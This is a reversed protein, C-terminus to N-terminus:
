PWFAATWRWTLHHVFVGSFYSLPLLQGRCNQGLRWRCTSTLVLWILLAFALSTVGGKWGIVLSTMVLAGLWDRGHSDGVSFRKSLISALWWALSGIALGVAMNELWIPASVAARQIMELNEFEHSRFYVPNFEPWLWMCGTIWAINWLYFRLPVRQGDYRILSWAALAALFFWHLVFLGIRLWDPYVLITRLGQMRADHLGPLNAVGSALQVFLLTLSVVLFAFEVIPYRMSIPHACSRCRGELILWGLIPINDRSRISHGCHPCASNQFVVSRGRPMRFVVVNLFSGISAGALAVWGVILLELVGIQLQFLWDQSADAIM